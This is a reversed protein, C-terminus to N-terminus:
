SNDEKYNKKRIDEYHELGTELQKKISKEHRVM